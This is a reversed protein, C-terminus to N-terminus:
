KKLAAIRDAVSMTEKKEGLFAAVDADTGSTNAGLANAKNKAAAAANKKAAIEKDMASMATGIADPKAQLGAKVKAQEARALERKENETARDLERKKDELAKKSSSLVKAAATVGEKWGKFDETSEAARIKADEVEGKMNETDTLLKELHAEFQAKKEVPVSGDALGNSIKTINDLARAYNDSMVKSAAVDKDMQMEANAMATSAIDLNKEYEEIQYEKLTAFDNKAFYNFVGQEVDNGIRSVKKEFLGFLGM